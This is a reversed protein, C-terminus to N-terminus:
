RMRIPQSTHTGIKLLEELARTDGDKARAVIRKSYQARLGPDEPDLNRDLILHDIIEDVSMEQIKKM